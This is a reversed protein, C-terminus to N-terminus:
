LHKKHIHLVNRRKGVIIKRVKNRQRKKDKTVLVGHEALRKWLTTKQLPFSEGQNHAFSQAIAYASEPELYVNQGDIWGILNGHPLSEAENHKGVRNSWGFHGPNNPEVPADGTKACAIHAKGSALAARLLGLFREVPDENGLLRSQATGVRSLFVRAKQVLMSGENESVAKSAVAYRIFMEFGVLLSAVVHATRAHDYGNAEERLAKHRAPISEELEKWNRAIFQVYGAMSASLLGANASKQLGTLEVFNVDAPGVEVVFMRAQLSHGRPLDEGTCVILGQPRYQPRLTSDPRMRGRGSRNGQARLLRDADRHARGIDNQSGTPCFDDVVLVADKAVFAQKELSNATSVWNAPLNSGNFKAGYHAQVVAALETKGAGTKGGVFVSHDIPLFESLPARYAAALLPYTIRCPAVKLMDLSARIATDLEEGAPPSPLNFDQLQCDVSSVNVDTVSGEEGIAGESHLYRPAGDIMRWGLHGYCMQQPVQGSLFQIATRLHDRNMSGPTVVANAGYNTLIWNMASFSSAAIEVEPLAEGTDRNGELKFSRTREVGDDRIIEAVIRAEFNALQVSVVEGRLFKDHLICGNEIRYPHGGSSTGKFKAFAREIDGVVWESGKELCRKSIGYGPNMLVSFITEKDHGEGIMAQIVAFDSESHSKYKDGDHGKEILRRIHKSLGLDELCIAGITLAFSEGNSGSMEDAIEGCEAHPDFFEAM